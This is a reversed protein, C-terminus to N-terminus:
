QSEGLLCENIGDGNSCIYGHLVHKIDKMDKTHNNLIYSTKIQFFNVVESIYVFQSSRFFHVVESIYAIGLLIRLINPKYKSKKNLLTNFKGKKCM